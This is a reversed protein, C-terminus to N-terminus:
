HFSFLTSTSTSRLRGEIAKILGHGYKNVVLLIKSELMIRRVNIIRFNILHFRVSDNNKCHGTSPPSGRRARCKGLCVAPTREPNTGYLRKERSKRM